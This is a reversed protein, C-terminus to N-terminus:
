SESILTDILVVLLIGAVFLTYRSWGMGKKSIGVGPLLDATAIYIFLGSAVALLVPVVGEIRGAFFFTLIAGIFTTLATLLNFGIIRLRSWGANLLLGFDSIEQPLEHLFTALAVFVGLRADTVFAAAIAVGDLFNHVSDGFLILPIATQLNDRVHDGHHHFHVLLKELFSAALIVVLVIGMVTKVELEDLAEPLLDLFSITLLVGAALPVAYGAIFTGWKKNALLIIGGMLGLISGIFTLGLIPFLVDM